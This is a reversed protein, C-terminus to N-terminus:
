ALKRSQIKWFSCHENQFIRVSIPLFDIISRVRSNWHLRNWQASFRCLGLRNKESTLPAQTYKHRSCATCSTIVLVDESSLRDYCICCTCCSREYIRRRWRCGTNEDALCFVWDTVDIKCWQWDRLVHCRSTKLWSKRCLPVIDALKLWLKRCLPVGGNVANNDSICHVHTCTVVEIEV